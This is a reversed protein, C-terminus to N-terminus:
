ASEQVAARTAASGPDRMMGVLAEALLVGTVPKRVYADFGAQRVDQEAQADSRATVALLPLRKGMARIQRALSLGDLGPLDLDLLGVDFPETVILSLAQLGNIAHSVQHGRARLLACIVGAVTLDDEVLLIRLALPPRGQGDGAHELPLSAELEWRLPLQVGLCNGRDLESRVDISGAMAHVLERSIALGVGGGAVRAISNDHGSFREFLHRQDDSSLARGTDHVELRLSRGLSDLKVQVSVSGSQTHRIANGVLNNLVQRLRVMDGHVRVPGPLDDPMLLALDKAQAQQEAQRGVEALLVSLSFPQEQLQLRGAEIGAMDLADDLLGLLQGGASHIGKVWGHQRGDLPTELLLESMGIVGTLPTRVEHGLASLFHTKFRSSQEALQQSHLLEQWRRRQASRRMWLSWLGGLLLLACLVWVIRAQTSAWWPPLVQVPFSMAASWPAHGTRAQVQMLYHGPPVGALSREGEAGVEFWEKEYGELKFRYRQNNRGAHTILRAVMALENESAQLVLKGDRLERPRWQGGDEASRVKLAAVQLRSPPLQLPIQDLDFHVLGGSNLALGRRGNRSPPHDLFETEALGDAVGFLQVEGRGTWRLLGRSSTAWLQGGDALLLGGLSVAPVGDAPGVFELLELTDGQWRYRGILGDSALWLLDQYAFAIDYVPLSGPLGRMTVLKGDHWRQVGGESTIWLSGDPGPQLQHVLEDLLGEAGGAELQRLLNGDADRQQLGIGAVLMWISGDPMLSMLDVRQFPDDGDVIRRSSLRGSHREYWFLEGRGGLLIRGDPLVLVSWLGRNNVQKRSLVRSLGGQADLRLLGDDSTILFGDGDASSRTLSISELPRGEFHHLSSFRRWDPPLYALGQSYTAFWIGGEHDQLMDIVTSGPMWLGDSAGGHVQDISGDRQLYLGSATGLWHAGQDDQLVVASRLPRQQPGHVPILVEDAVRLQWLQESSGVWIRGDNDISIRTIVTDGLQARAVPHLHGNEWRMLGAGTGIWMRGRPDARLAYIQGNPLQGPGSGVAIHEIGGQSDLRCLGTGNGGLWLVGDLWALTWVQAGCRQNLEPFADFGSGDARLRVAGMGNSAVWVRDQDDVALSEIYNAPLTGAVGPERQWVRIDSGDMRALGDATAAWVNGKSDRDLQLVQRSPFGDDFLIRQMRPSQLQAMALAPWIVLALLLWCAVAQGTRISKSLSETM